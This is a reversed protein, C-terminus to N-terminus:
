IVFTITGAVALLIGVWSGLAIYYTKYPTGFYRNGIMVCKHTPSLLYGAYDVAFFWLFYEIGFLQTMLVALAIFRSSSGMLFSSGFGVASITLMGLFTAPDVGLGKVLGQFYAQESKFYNGLAIVVAVTIIVEWNIYSLLKRFNWQQTIIIYYLALLGFCLIYNNTYIYAGIAVFMPLSSRMVQSLKFNGPAIMIDEDKVTYWIYLSIFLLSAILLPAIMGLWAVYTLGFAAIPIVVSKELPSWLYYHHTALYDIIGMKERGHGCKPAITDLMGASVTVRGEIPLIGGIASLIVLVFKNSRFVNRVYAYVPAFLSYEKALGASIMIFIIMWLYSIDKLLVTLVFDM